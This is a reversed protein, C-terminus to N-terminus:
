KLVVIKITRNGIRALLIQGAYGSLDLTEGNSVMFSRVKQGTLSYLDLLQPTVANQRLTVPGRTPNPYLGFGETSTQTISAFSDYSTAKWNDGFHNDLEPAIVSIVKEDLGTVIPWPAVPKYTVQDMIIGNPNSFRINEGENALSGSTWVWSSAVDKWNSNSILSKSVIVKKKAEIISGAPFIFDCADSLIFGSIDVPANGPNYLSIFETRNVDNNVNYFIDSIMVYPNASFRRIVSGMDSSFGGAFGTKFAPSTAGYGFDFTGPANFKPNGFRNNFGEPLSDNDSLCYSYQSFSKSDSTYTNNYSNSLISNTIFANGGARGAIKEYNAVPTGVSYFTCSDAHVFSSDKIGFGLTTNMILANKITLSTQLGISVGKDFINYILVSDIHVNSSEGLDIGDSNFGGFNRVVSNKIVGNDVNDYDIADTNPFDNGEFFCNSIYGKGNKVNILNGVIGSHLTSNTLSVSGYRTVIPDYDTSVIRLNDLLLNSKFASIAAVDRVPKPGMGADVITVHTMRVTDTSNLFCLAGWSNTKNSFDPNLDFLIKDTATGIAKMTGNVMMNANPAMHVVVGPEITLTVNAPVTVDGQLWYPSQAKYFTMNSSITDPVLSLGKSQYIATLKQDGTLTIGYSASTSVLNTTDPVSAVLQLDFGLDASNAANQHLEVAIVNSGSVLYKPDISYSFYTTEETGAVSSPTLTKYTITGTPMNSRVVEKGNLYVVAGDDRLLNITFNATAKIEPTLTFAKRFYTTIYKSSSSTGYSIVTQQTDGYGFKGTGSKWTADNFSTGYWTTGQDTGNDLYSWTSLKSIIDQSISPAWGKFTFGPKSVATLTSALNKPYLGSWTTESVKMGNFLFTGANSPYVSVSLQASASFGYNTLDTLLAAPRAEAFTKLKAVEKYWYAVSPMANGYSSTTGLWRAVHSPIEAEILNKHYDIRKDMRIPNFTTYLHNALRAGFYKKYAANKMLQNFPWVTQALSFSILDSSPTFFGRDLDMLIWKWKGSGKPKWAMVNHDISNNGSYMETVILDTFEEIDMVAAV